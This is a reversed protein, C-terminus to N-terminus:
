VKQYPNGVKWDRRRGRPVFLRVDGLDPPVRHPCKCALTFDMLTEQPVAGAWLQEIICEEGGCHGPAYGCRKLWM